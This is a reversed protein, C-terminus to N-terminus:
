KSASPQADAMDGGRYEELLIIAEDIKNSALESVVQIANAEEKSLTSAAMFVCEICDRAKVLIDQAQIIKTM